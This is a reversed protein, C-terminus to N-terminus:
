RGLGISANLSGRLGKESRGSEFSVMIALVLTILADFAGGLALGCSIDTSAQLLTLM